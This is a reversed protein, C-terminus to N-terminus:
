ERAVWGQRQAETTIEEVSMPGVVARGINKLFVFDIKDGAGMKKDQSLLAEVTTKQLPQFWKEDLWCSLGLGTFTQEIMALENAPLLKRHASWRVAFFLGQIISEGHPRGRSAELVHGLTHGLNLIKRIVGTEYPDELLIKYKADIAHPLHRWLYEASVAGSKALDMLFTPSQILGIKLLEGMADRIREQPQSFLLERVLFIKEAPYFTGVQNKIQSVNLATKGGHASDIASLWTSPCQYFRVGRKLVSAMFGAFDGVSGGGCAVITSKRNFPWAQLILEAHQAFNALDKLNEGATVPHVYKFKTELAPFAKAVVGDIILLDKNPDVENLPFTDTFFLRSRFNM